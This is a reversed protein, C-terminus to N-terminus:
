KARISYVKIEEILASQAESETKIQIFSGKGMIALNNM